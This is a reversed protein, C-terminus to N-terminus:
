NDTINILKDGSVKPGKLINKFSNAGDRIRGSYRKADKNMPDSNDQETVSNKPNTQTSTTNANDSKSALKEIMGTRREVNKELAIESMASKDPIIIVKGNAITRPNDIRNVQLLLPYLSPDGYYEAALDWLTDGSKMVHTTAMAQSVLLLAILVFLTVKVIKM